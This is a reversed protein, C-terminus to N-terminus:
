SIKILHDQYLWCHLYVNTSMMTTAMRVTKRSASTTFILLTETCYLHYLIHKWQMTESSYSNNSSIIYLITRTNQVIKNVFWMVEPLWLIFIDLKVEDWFYQNSIHFSYLICKHSLLLILKSFEMSKAFSTDMPAQYISYLNGYFLLIKDSHFSTVASIFWSSTYSYTFWYNRFMM